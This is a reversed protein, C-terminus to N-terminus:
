FQRGGDKVVKPPPVCDIPVLLCREIQLGQDCPDPPVLITHIGQGNRTVEAREVRRVFLLGKLGKPFDRWQRDNQSMLQRGFEIGDLSGRGGTQIGRENGDHLFKDFSHSRRERSMTDFRGQHDDLTIARQHGARNGRPPGNFGNKRSRRCAGDPPSKQRPKRIRQHDIDTPRGRVDGQDLIGLNTNSLFPGPNTLTFRRDLRGPNSRNTEPPVASDGESTVTMESHPRGPDDGQGVQRSPKRSNLLLNQSELATGREIPSESIQLIPKQRLTHRHVPLRALRSRMLGQQVKQHVSREHQSSNQLGQVQIMRQLEIGLTQDVLPDNPLRGQRRRIDEM